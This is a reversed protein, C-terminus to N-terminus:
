IYSPQPLTSRPLSSKKLLTCPYGFSFKRLPLPIFIAFHIMLTRPSMAVSQSMREKPIIRFDIDSERGFRYKLQCKEKKLNVIQDRTTYISTEELLNEPGWPYM